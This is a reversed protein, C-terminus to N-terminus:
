RRRAARKSRCLEGYLPRHDSDGRFDGNPLRRFKRPRKDPEGLVRGPGCWSWDPSSDLLYMRDLRDWQRDPVYYYTGPCSPCLDIWDDGFMERQARRQEGTKINLDGLVVLAGPRADDDMGAVIREVDRWTRLRRSFPSRPSPFHVALLTVGSALDVQLIGRGGSRHLVPEGRLPVRSLLAVDIGRPDSGEILVRHPYSRPLADALRNLTDLNEVEQLAIIDAPPSRGIVRALHRIKQGLVAESWDLNMCNRVYSLARKKSCHNDWFLPDSRKVALPLFEDDDRDADDRTDFLNDVNWTILTLKEPSGDSAGLLASLAAALAICRHM